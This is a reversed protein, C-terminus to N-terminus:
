EDDQMEMIQKAETLAQLNLNLLNLDLAREEIWIIGNDQIEVGYCFGHQRNFEEIREQKTM